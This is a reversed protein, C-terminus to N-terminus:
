NKLKEIKDELAIIKKNQLEVQESVEKLAVLLHTTLRSYNITLFGTSEDKRVLEPFVDAVQQAVLGVQQGGTHATLHNNIEPNWSYSIADLKKISALATRMENVDSKLRLDSGAFVDLYISESLVESEIQELNYEKLSGFYYASENKNDQNSNNNQDSSM